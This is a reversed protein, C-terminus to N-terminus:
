AHNSQGKDEGDVKDYHKSNGNVKRHKELLWGPVSAGTREAYDIMMLEIWQMHELINSGIKVIIGLLGIALTIITLQGAITAPGAM